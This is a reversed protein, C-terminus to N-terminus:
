ASIGGIKVTLLPIIALLCAKEGISLTHSLGLLIM